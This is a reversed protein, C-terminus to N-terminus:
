VSWFLLIEEVRKGEKIQALFEALFIDLWAQKQFSNVTATFICYVCVFSFSTFINSDQLIKEMGEETRPLLLNTSCKKIKVAFVKV